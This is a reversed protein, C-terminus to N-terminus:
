KLGIKLLNENSNLDLLEKLNILKELAAKHNAKKFYDLWISYVKEYHPNNCLKASIIGSFSDWEAIYVETLSQNEILPNNLNEDFSQIDNFREFYDLGVQNMFEEFGVFWKNISNSNSFDIVKGSLETIPDKDSEWDKHTPYFCECLKYPRYMLCAWRDGKLNIDPIIEEFISRIHNNRIAFQSNVNYTFDYMKNIDFSIRAWDKKTGRFLENKSKSAKFGENKFSLDLRTYFDNFVKKIDM